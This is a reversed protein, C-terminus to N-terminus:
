AVSLITLKTYVEYAKISLTSPTVLSIVDGVALGATKTLKYRGPVIPDAAFSTLPLKSVGVSSVLTFDAQVLGNIPTGDCEAKVDVDISNNTSHAFETIVLDVIRYLQNVFTNKAMIGNESLESTDALCLYIPSTSSVSGDSFKMKEANLLDVSFGRINGSQAVTGIFNNFIDILVVDYDGESNHTYLKTHLCLSEKIGFRWAYKGNRVFMTSIASSEYVADEGVDEVKRFIPWFFCRTGYPNLLLGNWYSLLSFNAPTIETGKPLTIMGKILGPLKCRSLGLNRKIVEACSAM